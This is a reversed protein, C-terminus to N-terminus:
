PLVVSDLRTEYFTTVLAAKGTERALRRIAAIGREQKDAHEWIPKCEIAGKIENIRDALIGCRDPRDQQEGYGQRWSCVYGGCEDPKTEHIKCNCGDDFSSLQMVNERIPETLRLHPCHTFGPKSLSKVKLYACCAVCGGCTRGERPVTTM